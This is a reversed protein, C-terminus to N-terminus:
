IHRANPIALLLAPGEDISGQYFPDSTATISSNSIVDPCHKTPCRSAPLPAAPWRTPAIGGRWAPHFRRIRHPNKGTGRLCRNPGAPAIPAPLAVRQLGVIHFPVPQKQQVLIERRLIQHHRRQHRHSAVPPM